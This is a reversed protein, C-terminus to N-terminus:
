PHGNTNALMVDRLVTHDLLELDPVEQVNM